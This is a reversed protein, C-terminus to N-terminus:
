SKLSKNPISDKDAPCADTPTEYVLKAHERAVHDNMQLANAVGSCMRLWREYMDLGQVYRGYSAKFAVCETRLIGLYLQEPSNTYDPTPYKYPQTLNM